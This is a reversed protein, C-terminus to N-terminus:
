PKLLFRAAAEERTLAQRVGDHGVSVLSKGERLCCVAGDGAFAQLSSGGSAAAASLVTRDGDALRYHGLAAGWAEQDPVRGIGRLALWAGDDSLLMEDVRSWATYDLRLRERGKPDFVIVLPRAKTYPDVDQLLLAASGDGGLALPQLVGEGGVAHTEPMKKTWLVRGNLAVMRLTAGAVFAQAARSGRPSDQHLGVAATAQDLVAFSEGRPAFVVSRRAGKELAPLPVERGRTRFGSPRRMDVHDDGPEWSLRGDPSVAALGSSAALVALLIPLGALRM